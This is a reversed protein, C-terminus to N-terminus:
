LQQNPLLALLYQLWLAEMIYLCTHIDQTVQKFYKDKSFEMNGWDKKGGM